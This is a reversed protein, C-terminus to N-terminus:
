RLLGREETSHCHSELGIGQKQEQEETAEPVMRQVNFVSRMMGRRLGKLHRRSLTFTLPIWLGESEGFRSDRNM